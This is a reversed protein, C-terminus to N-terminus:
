LEFIKKMLIWKEKPKTFPLTKQYKWTQEEWENVKPDKSNNRAKNELSFLDITDIIMFMRNNTRYIDMRTINTRTINDHIEPAINTHLREYKEISTENNKLDLTFCYRKM